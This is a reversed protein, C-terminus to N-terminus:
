YPFIYGPRGDNTPYDYNNTTPPTPSSRRKFLFILILIIVIAIVVYWKSSGKKQEVNNKVTRDEEKKPEEKRKRKERKPKTEVIELKEPKNDDEQQPPQVVVAPQPSQVILTPQPKVVNPQSAQNSALTNQPITQTNNAQKDGHYHIRSLHSYLSKKSLSVRCIPCNVRESAQEIAQASM